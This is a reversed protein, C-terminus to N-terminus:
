NKPFVPYQNYSVPPLQQQLPYMQSPNLIQQPYMKAPSPCMQPQAYPLQQMVSFPPPLSQTMQQFQMPQQMQSQQQQIISPLAQNQQQMNSIERHRAVSDSLKPILNGLPVIVKEMIILFKEIGNLTEFGNFQQGLNDFQFSPYDTEGTYWNEQNM